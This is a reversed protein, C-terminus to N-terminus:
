GGSVWREERMEARGGEGRGVEVLGEGVGKGGWAGGGGKSERREEEVGWSSAEGMDRDRRWGDMARDRRPALSKDEMESSSSRERGEKGAGRVVVVVRVERKGEEEM